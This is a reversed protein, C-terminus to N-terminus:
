RRTYRCSVVRFLRFIRPIAFSRLVLITHFLFTRRRDCDGFFISNSYNCYNLTVTAWASPSLTASFRHFLFSTKTLIKSNELAETETYLCVPGLDMETSLVLWLYVYDEHSRSSRMAVAFSVMSTCRFRRLFMKFHVFLRCALIRDCMETANSQMDTM